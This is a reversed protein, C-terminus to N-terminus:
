KALHAKIKCNVSDFYGFPAAKALMLWYSELWVRDENKPSLEAVAKADLWYHDNGADESILLFDESTTLVVSNKNEALINFLTFDDHDELSIAGEVSIKLYL